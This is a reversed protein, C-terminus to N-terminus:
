PLPQDPFHRLFDWLWFGLLAFGILLMTWYAGPRERAPFRNTGLVVERTWIARIVMPGLIATFLVPGISVPRGAPLRVLLLWALILLAPLVLLTLERWYDAPREGRRHLVGGGGIRGTRLVWASGVASMLAVAGILYDDFNM